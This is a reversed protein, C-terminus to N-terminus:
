QIHIPTHVQTGQSQTSVGGAHEEGEARLYAGPEQLESSNIKIFCSPNHQKNVESNYQVSVPLQAEVGDICSESNLAVACQTPSCKM